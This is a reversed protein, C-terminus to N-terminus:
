VAYQSGEKYEKNVRAACDGRTIYGKRATDLGANANYENSPASYLVFSDPQNIGVPAFVTMYTDTLSTIRGKYQNFYDRVPGLIQESASMRAIKTTTTGLGRATDSTFQILGTASSKPNKIYPNFTRGTEFAMVAMLWNPDIGQENAVQRVATRFEQSVKAGWILKAGIDLGTTGTVSGERIANIDMRWISGWNDGRYRLANINWVGSAHAEISTVFANGTNFTQFEADVEFRDRPSMFPNIRTAIDLYVGDTGGSIEPIGIMGARQSILHKATNREKGPFSFTVENNHNVFTFKYARALTNLERTIDGDVVYGSIMVIQQYHSKDDAIVLRKGWARCLDTLVDYLTVGKSYSSNASGTDNARDGSNCLIRTVINAGDRERFVNVITGSFIEGLNDSVNNTVTGALANVSSDFRSYGALLKIASGKVPEIGVTKSPSTSKPSSASAMNYLRIDATSYSGGPSVIVDFVCRLQQSPEKMRAVYVNGNLQLEYNRLEAM